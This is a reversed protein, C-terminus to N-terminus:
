ACPVDLLRAYAAGRPSLRSQFLIARDVASRLAPVPLVALAERTTRASGRPVQTVRALTLHANFPRDDALFGQPLLRRNFEDHMQRLQDLGRDVGIWFVRPPGSPPFAGCGGFVVDFPAIPLPPALADIVAPVRRDEVEGIFRVTLHMKGAPIWSARVEPDIRRRLEQGVAESAIRVDESVAAAVFLRM